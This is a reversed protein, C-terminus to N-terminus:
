RVACESSGTSTKQYSLFVTGAQKHLEYVTIGYPCVALAHPDDETIQHSLGVKCFLHIQAHKYVSKHNPAAELTRELFEGAHSTYTIVLGRDQISAKLFDNVTEWDGKVSYVVSWDTVVKNAAVVMNFPLLIFSFLLVFRM